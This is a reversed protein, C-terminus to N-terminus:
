SQNIKNLLEAILQRVQDGNDTLLLPDIVKLVDTLLGHMEPAAAILRANAEGRATWHKITEHRGTTYCFNGVANLEPDAIIYENRAFQKIIQWPGPTFKPQTMIKM